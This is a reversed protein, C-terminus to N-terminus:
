ELQYLEDRVLEKSQQREARHCFKKPWKGAGQGSFPRRSWFDYGSGKSGKKTRAM